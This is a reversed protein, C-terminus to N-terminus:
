FIFLFLYIFFFIFLYFYILLCVAGLSHGTIVIQYDPLEKMKKDILSRLQESLWFAATAMGEHAWGSFFEKPRGNLDTVVDNYSKSGRISVVISKKEHSIAVVHAPKHIDDQWCTLLIDQPTIGTYECLTRIDEEEASNSSTSHKLFEKVGRTLGFTSSVGVWGYSTIAFKM